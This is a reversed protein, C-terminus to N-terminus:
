PQSHVCQHHVPQHVHVSHVTSVNYMTSVNTNPVAQSKYKTRLAAALANELRELVVKIEENKIKLENEVAKLSDKVGELEAVVPDTKVTHAFACFDGFKCRRYELFYKCERPHRKQCESADCESTKCIESVHEKWCRDGHKCFGFKNHLCITNNSM